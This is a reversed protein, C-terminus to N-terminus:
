WPTLWAPALRGHTLLAVAGRPVASPHPSDTGVGAGVVRPGPPLLHQMVLHSHQRAPRAEAWVGHSRTQLGPGPSVRGQGGGEPPDQSFGARKGDGVEQDPTSPPSFPPLPFPPEPGDVLRQPEEPTLGLSPPPPPKASPVSVPKDDGSRAGVVQSTATKDEAEPRM